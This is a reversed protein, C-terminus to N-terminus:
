RSGVHSCSVDTTAYANNVDPGKQQAANTEDKQHKKLRDRPGNPNTVHPLWELVAIAKHENRTLTFM